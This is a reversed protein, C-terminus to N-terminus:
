FEMRFGELLQELIKGSLTGTPRRKSRWSRKGDKLALRAKQLVGKGASGPWTCEAGFGVAVMVGGPAQGSMHVTDCAGILYQPM